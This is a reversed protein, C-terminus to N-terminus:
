DDDTDGTLDIVEVEQTPTESKRKLPPRHQGGSGSAGGSGNDANVVAIGDSSQGSSEKDSQGQQYYLVAPAAPEDKVTVEDASEGLAEPDVVGGGANNEEVQRQQLQQQLRPQEEQVHEGGDAGSEAEPTAALTAAPSTYFSNIAQMKMPTHFRRRRFSNVQVINETINRGAHTPTAKPASSPLSTPMPASSTSTPPKERLADRRQQRLRRKENEAELRKDEEIQKQKVEPPDEDDSDDEM